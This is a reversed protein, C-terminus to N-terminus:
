KSAVNVVLLVKGKYKSFSIEETGELNKASFDYFSSGDDKVPSGTFIKGIGELVKSMTTNQRKIYQKDYYNEL